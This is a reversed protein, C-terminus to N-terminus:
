IASKESVLSFGLGLPWLQIEMQRAPLCFFLFFKEQFRYTKTNQLFLPNIKQKRGLNGTFFSAFFLRIKPPSVATPLQQSRALAHGRAGKPQGDASLITMRILGDSQAV